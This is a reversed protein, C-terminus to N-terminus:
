NRQILSRKFLNLWSDNMEAQHLVKVSAQEGNAQLAVQHILMMGDNPNITLAFMNQKASLYAKIAADEAAIKELMKPAWVAVHYFIAGEYNAKALESLTAKALAYNQPAPTQGGFVLAVADKDMMRTAQKAADAPENLAISLYVNNNRNHAVAEAGIAAALSTCISSTNQVINLSKIDLQNTLALGVAQGTYTRLAFHEGLNLPQEILNAYPDPSIETTPKDGMAFAISSTLTFGSVLLAQKLTTNM